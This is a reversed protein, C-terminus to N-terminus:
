VGRAELSHPDLVVIRRHVLDILGDRKFENLFLSTTERTSGILCALEHQSLKLDILTGGSPAPKGHDHALRLLLRALRAPVDRFVLDEMKNEIARLRLGILKTVRLAMDPAQAMLREFDTRRVICLYADDIVEAITERPGSDILSLEGFIEGPELITITIEKGEESIKSIKVRGRKLCYVYESPDDPMYVIAKKQLTKEVMMDNLQRFMAEDMQSFINIQKLYWLRDPM